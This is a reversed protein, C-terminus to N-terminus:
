GALASALSVELQSRMLGVFSEFDNRAIGHEKEMRKRTEGLLSEYTEALWRAVTARHVRYMRGIAEASVGEVLYLRLVNRDRTSLSALADRFASRFPGVFEARFHADDASTVVIPIEHLEDDPMSAPSKVRKMSYATRMAAVQVFSTLPGRGIYSGIRAAREPEDVLLKVRVDQAVDIAFEPDPDIRAVAPAVAPMIRTEFYQLARADRRACGCALFLDTTHMERIAQVPETGEPARDAIWAAFTSADLEIGPFAARGAAFAGALAEELARVDRIEVDWADRQISVYTHALADRM